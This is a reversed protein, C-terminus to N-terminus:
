PITLPVDWRTMQYNLPEKRITIKKKFVGNLAMSVIKETTQPLGGGLNSNKKILSTKKDLINQPNKWISKFKRCVPIERISSQPDSGLTRDSECLSLTPDLFIINSKM